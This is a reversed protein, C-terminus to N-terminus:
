CGATRLECQTKIDESWLVLRTDRLRRLRSETYVKYAPTAM